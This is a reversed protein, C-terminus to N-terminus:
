LVLLVTKTYQIWVLCLTEPHLKLQKVLLRESGPIHSSIASIQVIVLILLSKTWNIDQIPLFFVSPQPHMVWHADRHAYNLKLQRYIVGYLIIINLLGDASYLCWWSACWM